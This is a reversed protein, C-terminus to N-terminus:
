VGEVVVFRANAAGERHSKAEQYEPSRYCTEAQELSPFELVVVRRSETDGELTVTRGGRALYRGGYKAIAAPARDTYQRYQDPDTVDVTVIMYAVLEDEMTSPWATIALVPM